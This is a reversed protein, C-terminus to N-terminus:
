GSPYLGVMKKYEISFLFSTKLSLSQKVIMCYLAIVYQLAGTGHWSSGLVFATAVGVHNYCFKLLFRFGVEAYSHMLSKYCIAM